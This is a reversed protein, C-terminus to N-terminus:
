GVRMVYYRTNNVVVDDYTGDYGNMMGWGDEDVLGQALADKDIYDEISLGFDSMYSTIDNEVDELMSDVKNDIMDQSPEMDVEINDLEEQLYNIHDQTQEYETSDSDDINRLREEYEEIESELQEKREEQESTLEFDEESFYVDPENAIDNEYFDRFYDLVEDENIYGDIFGSRFGEVGMDDVLNKSYELASTEMEDETGVSYERGKFGPLLVEFQSLGYYSYNGPYMDYVDAVDETLGDIEEQVEEITNLIEVNEDPDGERDEDEYQAELDEKKKILVSLKEKDDEDLVKIDGEQELYELLAQAKMGLEDEKELSWDDGDRYENMTEKKNNLEELERRKERPSGYDSVYGKVKTNSVDSVSTRSIDLNGDIYGINGLSTTPTNALNLDGTIWIPKGGFKKLNTVSNGNYSTLVMLDTYEKPTMKYYDDEVQEVITKIFRYLGEETLRIKRSM